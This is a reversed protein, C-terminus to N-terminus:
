FGRSALQARAAAAEAEERAKRVREPISCLDDYRMQDASRNYGETYISENASPVHQSREPYPDRYSPTDTLRENIPKDPITTTQPEPFPLDSGYRYYPTTTNSKKSRKSSKHGM